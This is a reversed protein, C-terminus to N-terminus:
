PGLVARNFSSAALTHSCTFDWLLCRGNAWPLLTDILALGDPRKGDTRVVYKKLHLTM